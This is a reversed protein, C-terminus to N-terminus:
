DAPFFVNKRRLHVQWKGAESQMVEGKDLELRLKGLDIELKERHKKLFEIEQNAKELREKATDTERRYQLIHYSWPM